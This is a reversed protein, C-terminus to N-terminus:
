GHGMGSTLIKAARKSRTVCHLHSMILCLESIIKRSGSSQVWHSSLDKRLLPDGLSVGVNRWPDACGCYCWLWAENLMEPQVGNPFGGITDAISQAQAESAHAEKFRPLIVISQVSM